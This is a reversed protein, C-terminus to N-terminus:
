KPKRKRRGNSKHEGNGESESPPESGGSAMPKEVRGSEVGGSEVGDCEQAGRMRDMLAEPFWGSRKRRSRPRSHGTRGNPQARPPATSASALAADIEEFERLIEDVRPRGIRGGWCGSQLGSGFCKSHCPRSTNL